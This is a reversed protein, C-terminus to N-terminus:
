FPVEALQEPTYRPRKSPGRMARSAEREKQELERVMADTKDIAVLVEDAHQEADLLFSEAQKRRARAERLAARLAALKEKAQTREQRRLAVREKRTM